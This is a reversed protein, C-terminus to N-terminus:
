IEGGLETFLRTLLRVTEEEGLTGRPLLGSARVAENQNLLHLLEASQPVDLGIKWLTEVESFVESPTGDLVLVGDNMVLVRDAEAAENMYHTILIVTLGLDEKLHHIATLIEERGRPDLMATSEDFVICDPQMALVGAIAIRQKQGGSLTHPARNAADKMGVAALADDVRRRIEEPSIGLNEPGFAVDEEVISSVLQNDPNQFVMGITKRIEYINEDDATSLGNVTVSGATPVLIGNFLKALTSKGSGNHGLVAVFSGREIEVSFDHVAYHKERGEEQPYTYSLHEAKLFVNKM